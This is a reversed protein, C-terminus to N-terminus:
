EYTGGFVGIYELVTVQGYIRCFEDGVEIKVNNELIQVTNEEIKKIKYLIKKSCLKKLQEDTYKAEKLVYERYVKKERYVPLYFSDGLSVQSNYTFVDYKKYEKSGIHFRAEIYYDFVQGYTIEYKRGTYQKKLYKRSIKEDITYVVKGVVDGDARVTKETLVTLDDNYLEYKGTILVTGKEVADGAKVLPKGSRTIISVIEPSKGSILDGTKEQEKKEEELDNINERVYVTLKTGTIDVSAWTVDFYKNRLAKEIQEGHILDKKVGEDINIEKLFRYLEEDTHKYNGEFSINWIYLSMIYVILWGIFVGVFFMKRKRYTYLLFPLGYREKIRFRFKKTNVSMYKNSRMKRIITKLKYVDRPVIYFYTSDSAKVVDWINISRAMVLNLFRETDDGEIEICVYGKYYRFLKEFM